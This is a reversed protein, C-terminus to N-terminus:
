KPDPLFNFLGDVNERLKEVSFTKVHELAALSKETLLTPDKIM